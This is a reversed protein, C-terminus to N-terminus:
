PLEPQWLYYAGAQAAAIERGLNVQLLNIQTGRSASDVPARSYPTAVYDLPRHYLVLDAHELDALQKARAFADHLDGVADVLGLEYARQGTFVRGDTVIDWTDPDVEPRSLRVVQVFDAYFSDVLQQLIARQDPDLNELPSGTAKNPGSVIADARIGIRELAPKVTVTQLVVGISGTISSPYAVLHDGACALYYGGSAAVDMMLVVVPKETAERFRKVERYMMDSATVTGGPSNIRLVVAAVKPDRAAANLAEVLTSVPNYGASLIGAQDTNTILGTVDILAVRASGLRGDPEVTTATLKQGGPALGVVFTAPGCGILGMVVLSLCCWSALSYRAM